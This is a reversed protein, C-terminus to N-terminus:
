DNHKVVAQLVSEAALERTTWAQDAYPPWDDPQLEVAEDISILDDDFAYTKGLVPVVTFAEYSDLANSMGRLKAGLLGVNGPDSPIMHFIAAEVGARWWHNGLFTALQGRYKACSLYKTLEGGEALAMNLSEPSVRLRAALHKEDLLFCPYPLIRHLLWRLVAIGHTHKAFEHAPPFCQRVARIAHEAWSQETPLTLWDWLAREAEAADDAPWDPPLARVAHALEAVRKPNTKANKKQFVWELNHARAVLHEAPALGRAAKEIEGTYLAFACPRESNLEHNYEQLITLLALGNAPKLSLGPLEEREPWDDLVYDVLVLDVGELSEDTIEQPHMLRISVAGEGEVLEKWAALDNPKDDVHLIIPKKM